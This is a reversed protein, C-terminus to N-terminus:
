FDDADFQLDGTQTTMSKNYEGVRKEFFNTKGELSINEMWSFPCQSGYIIGTGLQVSLRDAVFEIYTCMDSGSMGILKVPLASTVFEKEIDVASKIIERITQGSPTHVLRRFLACAFTQHLGEDRSILENSFCLGPMLGKHKLWFISCFSGSFFIGELCAFAVLREGFQKQSGMWKRAWQAKQKIAPVTEIANLMLTKEAPDTVLKDIMLSYTEAHVHENYSQYAYFARAEPILVEVGFNGDINESVIGDSGAFFALVMKIFYQESHTMKAWDKLDSGLDIEEATWASAQAQKYLSWLEPYEIPYTTPRGQTLIPEAEM